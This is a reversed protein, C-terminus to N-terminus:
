WPRLWRSCEAGGGHGAEVNPGRAVQELPQAVLLVVEDLAAAQVRPVREVRHHRRIVQM